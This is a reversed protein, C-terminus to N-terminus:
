QKIPQNTLTPTTANNAIAVGEGTFKTQKKLGGSFELDTFRSFVGMASGNFTIQVQASQGPAMKQNPKFNPTTCGCGPKANLLTVTDKGINSIEITYTAPKGFSIKGFDYQDNKFKLVDDVNTQASAPHLGIFLALVSAFFTTKKM